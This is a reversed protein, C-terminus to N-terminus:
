KFDKNDLIYHVDEGLKEAVVQYVQEAVYRNLVDGGNRLIVPCLYFAGIEKSNTRDTYDIVEVRNDNKMSLITRIKRM